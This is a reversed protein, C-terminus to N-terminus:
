TFTNFNINLDFVFLIQKFIQSVHLSDSFIKMRNRIVSKNVEKQHETQRDFYGTDIKNLSIYNFIHLYM